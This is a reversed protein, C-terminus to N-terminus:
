TAAQFSAHKCATACGSCASQAAHMRWMAHQKTCCAKGLCETHYPMRDLMIWRRSLLVRARAGCTSGLLDEHLDGVGLLPECVRGHLM